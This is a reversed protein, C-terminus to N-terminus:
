VVEDIVGDGDCPESDVDVGDLLHDSICRMGSCHEVVTESIKRFLMHCYEEEVSFSELSIKLKEVLELCDTMTHKVLDRNKHPDEVFKLVSAEAIVSLRSQLMVLEAAVMRAQFQKLSVTSM